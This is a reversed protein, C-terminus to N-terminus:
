HLCLGYCESTEWELHSEQPSPEKFTSKLQGHTSVTAKNNEKNHITQACMYKTEWQAQVHCTINGTLLGCSYSHRM